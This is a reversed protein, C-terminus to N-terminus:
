QWAVERLPFVPGDRCVRQLGANTDVVCGYCAGVACGMHRELSVQALSPSSDPLGWSAKRVVDSVARLMPMPGCAFLQDAWPLLDPIGATVLGPLGFSGDDTYVTYEVEPPVLAAPFVKLATRAGFLMTVEVDKALAEEALVLLPAIGVGGGVLLIRRAKPHLAFGRGLPGLLDLQDGPRSEALLASGKGVVEVLLALEERAALLGSRADGDWFSAISIPRRLLPDWGATCRVHVFQGSVFHAAIAPARVRLVHTGPALALNATVEGLVQKM